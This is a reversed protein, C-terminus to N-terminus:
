GVYTYINGKPIGNVYVHFVHIQGNNGYVGCSYALQEKRLTMNNSYEKRIHDILDNLVCKYYQNADVKKMNCLYYVANEYHYINGNGIDYAGLQRALENLKKNSLEIM